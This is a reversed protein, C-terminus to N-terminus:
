NLAVMTSRPEDPGTDFLRRITFQRLDKEASYVLKPYKYDNGGVYSLLAKTQNGKAKDLYGSYIMTGVEVNTDPNFPSRGKLKDRHVRAMVQMLGKAGHKSVANANFRSEVRMIALIRTPDVHYRKAHAYVSRVIGAVHSPKYRTKSSKYIWDVAAAQEPSLQQVTDTEFADYTAACAPLNFLSCLAAILFILIWAKMTVDEHTSAIPRKM